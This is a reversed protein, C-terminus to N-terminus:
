EDKKNGESSERKEAKKYSESRYDTIYFGSGKFLFGGGMGILRKISGGCKPCTSLPEATIGQFVEFRYGCRKCRYEYTPM